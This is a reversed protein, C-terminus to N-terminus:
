IRMEFRALLKPVRSHHSAWDRTHPCMWGIAEVIENHIQEIPRDFIPEHHAVRNRFRRIANFRGHVLARKRGGDQRFCRFLARRWLSADYGRGLLGVWFAFRLEAVLTGHSVGRGQGGSAENIFRRSHDSLPAAMPYALWGAGYTRTMEIDIHNRLSVELCQLSVYFAESLLMNREYLAIAEDLDGNRAELYKGLRDKSLAVQLAHNIETSQM